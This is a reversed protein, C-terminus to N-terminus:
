SPNKYNSHSVIWFVARMYMYSSLFSIEQLGIVYRYLKWTGRHESGFWPRQTPISTVNYQKAMLLLLAEAKCLLSHSSFAKSSRVVSGICLIFVQMPVSCRGSDDCSSLTVANSSSASHHSFISKAIPVHICMYRLIVHYPFPRLGVQWSANSPTETSGKWLSTRLSCVKQPSYM